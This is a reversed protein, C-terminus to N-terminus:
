CCPLCRMQAEATCSARGIFTCYCYLLQPLPDWGKASALSGLARSPARLAQYSHSMPNCLMVPVWHASQHCPGRPHPPPPTTENPWMLQRLYSGIPLDDAHNADHGTHTCMAQVHNRWAGRCAACHVRQPTLSHNLWLLLTSQHQYRHPYANSHFNMLTPPVPVICCYAASPQV